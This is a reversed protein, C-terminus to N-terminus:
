IRVMEPIGGVKMIVGYFFKLVNIVLCLSFAVNGDMKSFNM